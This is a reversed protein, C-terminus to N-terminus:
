APRRGLQFLLLALAAGAVAAGASVPLADAPAFLAIGLGALASLAGGFRFLPQQGSGWRNLTEGWAVLGPSPAQTQSGGGDEVATSPPIAPQQLISGIRAVLRDFGEHPQGAQWDKLNVAQLRRFEFPLQEGPTDDIIVTAAIQRNAGEAAEIQVWRSSVSHGSWLVVMCQAAEVASEIVKAYDMGPPIHKDWWVSWGRAEFAAAMRRAFVKDESAYSIFVQTVPM